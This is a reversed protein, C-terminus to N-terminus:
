LPRRAAVGARRPFREPTGTVKDFIRFRRGPSASARVGAPRAGLLLSVREAVAEEEAVERGLWLVAQGGPRVLPLVLELVVALPAVARAVAVDFADRGRGRAYDEARGWVVPLGSRELFKAKRRSAELLTVRLSPRAIALPVGPFGAGSGVDVVSAAPPLWPLGALSDLVHDQVFAREDVIATLNM